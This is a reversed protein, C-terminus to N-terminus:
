TLVLLSLDEMKTFLYFLDVVEYSKERLISEITTKINEIVGNSM